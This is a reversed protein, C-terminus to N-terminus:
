YLALQLHFILNFAEDEWLQKLIKPSFYLFFVISFHLAMPSPSPPLSDLLSSFLLLSSATFKTPQLFSELFCLIVFCCQYFCCM